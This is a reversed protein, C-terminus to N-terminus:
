IKNMLEVFPLFMVVQLTIPRRLVVYMKSTLRKLDGAFCSQSREGYRPPTRLYVDNFVGTNCESQEVIIM